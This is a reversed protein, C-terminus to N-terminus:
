SVSGAANSRFAELASTSPSLAQAQRMAEPRDSEAFCFHFYNQRFIAPLTLAIMPDVEARSPYISLREPLSTDSSTSTCGLVDREAIYDVVIQQPGQKCSTGEDYGHDKVSPRTGTISPLRLTGSQM